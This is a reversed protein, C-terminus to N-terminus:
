KEQDSLRLLQMKHCTLQKVTIYNTVAIYTSYHTVGDGDIEYVNATITLTLSLQNVLLSLMKKLVEFHQLM